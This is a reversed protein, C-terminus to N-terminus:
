VRRKRRANRRPWVRVGNGLSLASTLGLFWGVNSNSLATAIWARQTTLPLGNLRADAQGTVNIQAGAGDIEVPVIM